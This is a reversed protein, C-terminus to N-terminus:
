YAMQKRSKPEGRTRRKHTKQYAPKWRRKAKKKGLEQEYRDQQNQRMPVGKGDASVVLIEGEEEEAPPAASEWYPNVQAAMRQNMQELARVTIEIGLLERLIDRAEAYPQNTTLRQSWDELVYSQEGAPLGLKVDTPVHEAAQKERRRYIFRPIELRGFISHYKRVHRKLSRKLEHDQGQLTPGCDGDGAAQVFGEVLRLGLERLRENLGREVEDIRRGERLCAELFVLIPELASGLEAFCFEPIM